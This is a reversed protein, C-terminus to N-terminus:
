FARESDVCSQLGAVECRVLRRGTAKVRSVYAEAITADSWEDPNADRVYDYPNEASYGDFTAAKYGAYLLDIIPPLSLFTGTDVPGDARKRRFEASLIRIREATPPTKSLEIGTM